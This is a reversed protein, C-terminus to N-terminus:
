QWRSDHFWVSINALMMCRSTFFHVSERRSLKSDHNLQFFTQMKIALNRFNFKKELDSVLNLSAWEINCIGQAIWYVYAFILCILPLVESYHSTEPWALVFHCFALASQHINKNNGDPNFYPTGHYPPVYKESYCVSEMTLTLSSTLDILVVGFWYVWHFELSRSWIVTERKTFINGM